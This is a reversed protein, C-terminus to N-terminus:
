NSEEGKRRQLQGALHAFQQAAAASRGSPGPGGEGRLQRGSVGASCFREDLRAHLVAQRRQHLGAVLHASRRAADGWGCESATCSGPRRPGGNATDAAAPSCCTHPMCKPTRPVLAQAMGPGGSQQVAHCVRYVAPQQLQCSASACEADVAGAIFCGAAVAACRQM